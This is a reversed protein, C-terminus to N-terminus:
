VVNIAGLVLERVCLSRVDRVSDRARTRQAFLADSRGYGKKM